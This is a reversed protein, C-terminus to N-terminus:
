IRYWANSSIDSNTDVSISPHLSDTEIFCVREKNYLNRKM